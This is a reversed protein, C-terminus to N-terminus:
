VEEFPIKHHRFFRRIVQDWEQELTKDLTFTQFSCGTVATIQKHEYRLNLFLGGIDEVTYPLGVSTLTNATNADSLRLVIRFSHPLERGRIIQFALPRVASWGAFRQGKEPETRHGDIAVRFNTVFEAETVEFSDFTERLFLKTTFDKIDAIQLGIMSETYRLDRRKYVSFSTKERLM